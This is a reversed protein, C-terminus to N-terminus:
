VAQVGQGRTIKGIVWSSIGSKKLIRQAQSIRASKLILVMGIGLNFTRMMEFDSINGSDRVFDFLRPVPWSGMYITAGLGAPIVRPLNDVFGGGTINVIGGVSVNQAVKLVPKVYIRTPTLLEKGLKGKLDKETFIKRLLSYGNSHFGSSALGLIADGKRINKGTIVKKRDVVGVSFGAVDYQAFDQNHNYFGPMIATEGGVLACGAERCGDAIGKLVERTIRPNFKGAAYYDLFFIPKAGCTILDNVCMAVLDIGITDHRGQLRAIELKTGVGDTSSVLLPDRVGAKKFDFLAAFGTASGLVGPTHTSRILKVIERNYAPDGKLHPVGAKEYTWNTKM